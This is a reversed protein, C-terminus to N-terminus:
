ATALMPRICCALTARDVCVSVARVRPRTPACAQPQPAPRVGPEFRYRPQALAQPRLPLQALLTAIGGGFAFALAGGTALAGLDTWASM